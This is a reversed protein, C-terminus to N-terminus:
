RRGGVLFLYGIIIGAWENLPDPLAAISWPQPYACTKCLFISYLIVAAFWMGLPLVFFLQFWWGGKSLLTAKIQTVTADHELQIRERETDTEAKKLKYNTYISLGSTLFKALLTYM